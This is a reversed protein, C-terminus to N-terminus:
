AERKRRLMFLPQFQFALFFVWVGEDWVLFSRTFPIRIIITLWSASNYDRLILLLLLLFLFSVFLFLVSFLTLRASLFYMQEPLNAEQTVKKRGKNESEITRSNLSRWSIIHIQAGTHMNFRSAKKAWREEVIEERMREVLVRGRMRGFNFLTLLSLSEFLFNFCLFWCPLHPSSYLHNPTHKHVWASAFPLRLYLRLM